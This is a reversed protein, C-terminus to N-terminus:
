TLKPFLVAQWRVVDAIRLAIWLQHRLFWGRGPKQSSPTLSTMQM